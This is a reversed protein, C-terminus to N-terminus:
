EKILNFLIVIFSVTYRFNVGRLMFRWISALFTPYFVKWILQIQPKSTVDVNRGAWHMIKTVLERRESLIQSYYLIYAPENILIIYWDPIHGGTRRIQSGELRVLRHGTRGDLRNGAWDTMNTSREHWEKSLNQHIIYCSRLRKLHCVRDTLYIVRWGTM